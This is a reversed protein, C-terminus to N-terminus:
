KTQNLIEKLRNGLIGGYATKLYVHLQRLSPTIYLFFFVVIEKTLKVFMHHMINQNSKFM